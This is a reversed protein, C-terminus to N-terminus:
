KINLGTFQAQCEMGVYAQQANGSLSIGTLVCGTLSASVDSGGGCSGTFAKIVPAAPSCASGLVSTIATPSEAVIRSINLQGAAHKFSWYVTSTGCEYVPTTQQQYSISWQQVLALKGSGGVIVGQESEVFSRGFSGNFGFIDAM